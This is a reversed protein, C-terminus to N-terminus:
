AISAGTMRKLNGGGADKKEFKKYTKDAQHAHLFAYYKTLVKISAALIKEADQLNKTNTDEAQSERNVKLSDETESISTETDSISVLLQAITGDLDGLATEKDLKAAENTSTENECTGKKKVDEAEEEELISITNDIMKLVKELPNGATFASVVRALRRSM